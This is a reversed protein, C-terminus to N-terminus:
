LTTLFNVIKSGIAAIMPEFQLLYLAMIVVVWVVLGWRIFTESSSGLRHRSM